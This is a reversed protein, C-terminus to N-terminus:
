GQGLRLEAMPVEVIQRGEITTRHAFRDTSKGPSASYGTAYGPAEGPTRETAHEPAGAQRRAAARAQERRVNRLHGHSPGPSGWAAVRFRRQLTDAEDIM